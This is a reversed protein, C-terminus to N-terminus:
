GPPYGKSKQEKALDVFAKFPNPRREGLLRCYNIWKAAHYGFMWFKYRSLNDIATWYAEAMYSEIIEREVTSM